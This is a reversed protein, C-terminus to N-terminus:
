QTETDNEQVEPFINKKAAEKLVSLTKEGSVNNTQKENKDTSFAEPLKTGSTQIAKSPLLNTKQPHNKEEPLETM